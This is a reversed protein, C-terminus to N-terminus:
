KWVFNIQYNIPLSISPNEPQPQGCLKVDGSCNPNMVNSAPTISVYGVMWNGSATKPLYAYFTGDADTAADTRLTKSGNTQVIAFGIGNVPTGNVTLVRGSILQCDTPQLIAFGDLPFDDVFTIDVWGRIVEDTVVYAWERGPALGLVQLRTGEAMVRSVPFLTGPQTRLNVNQARTHIYYPGNPTAISATATPIIAATLTPIPTFIPQASLTGAVITALQDKTSLAPKTSCASGFALLSILVFLTQKKMYTGDLSIKDWKV